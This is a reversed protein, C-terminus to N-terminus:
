PDQPEGPCLTRSDTARRGDVAPSIAASTHLQSSRWLRARDPTITAVVPARVVNILVAAPWIVRTRAETVQGGAVRYLSLGPFDSGNRLHVRWTVVVADEGAVLAVIDYRIGGGALQVAHECEDRAVKPGHCPALHGYDVYDIAGRQLLAFYARVV